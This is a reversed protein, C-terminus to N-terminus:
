QKLLVGRRRAFLGKKYDAKHARMANHGKSWLLHEPTGKPHPNSDYSKGKLAAFSGADHPSVKLRDTDIEELWNGGGVTEAIGYDKELDRQIIDLIKEIDDDPHLGREATIEDIKEHIQKSVFQEINSKPHAYINYIDVNGRAIEQLLLDVESMGSESLAKATLKDIARKTGIRRQDSKDFHADREDRSYSPMHAAAIHHQAQGSAKKAYRGLTEPSLEDLQDEKLHWGEDKCKQAFAKASEADKFDKIRENQFRVVYRPTEHGTFEKSVSYRRDKSVDEGEPLVGQPGNIRSRGYNKATNKM